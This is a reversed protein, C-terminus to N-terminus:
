DSDYRGSRGSCGRGGCKRDDCKNCSPGWDQDLRDICDSCIPRNNPFDCTCTSAVDGSADFCDDNWLGHCCHPCYYCEGIYCRKYDKAHYDELISADDFPIKGDPDEQVGITALVEEATMGPVKHEWKHPDPFCGTEAFHQIMWCIIPHLDTSFIVDRDAEPDATAEQVNDCFVFRCGLELLPYTNITFELDYSQPQVFLRQVAYYEKYTVDDFPIYFFDDSDPDTDWDSDWDCDCTDACTDACTGACAGACTDAPDYKLGFVALVDEPRMGPVLNNTLYPNPLTEYISLYEMMWCVKPHLDTQLGECTNCIAARAATRAFAFHLGLLQWLVWGDAQFYPQYCPDERWKEDPPIIIQHDYWKQEDAEPKSMSMTSFPFFLDFISGPDLCYVM